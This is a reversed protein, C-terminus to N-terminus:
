GGTTLVQAIDFSSVMGVPMGSNGAVVVHSTDHEVMLEAARALTEDAGVAVPASAAIMAAPEAHAGRHLARVLDMGTILGFTLHRSSPAIGAIAVCHIRRDAMTRAVTALPADAACTALGPHMVDGVRTQLLPDTILPRRVAAPWRVRAPRPAERGFTAAVDFSSVVGVPADTGPDTALVHTVYREAMMAVAEDLTADVCVTDVPERAVDAASARPRRLAARVFELDNLILPTPRDGPALMVAHIRHGVMLAAIRRLHDGPLCMVVGPRMADRVSVRVLPSAIPSRQDDILTAAVKVDTMM